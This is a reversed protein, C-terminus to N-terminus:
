REVNIPRSPPRQGVTVKIDLADSGRQV